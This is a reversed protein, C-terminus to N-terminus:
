LDAQIAEDIGSHVRSAAFLVTIVGAQKYQEAIFENLGIM